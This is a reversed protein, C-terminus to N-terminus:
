AGKLISLDHSRLDNLHPEATSNCAVATSGATTENLRSIPLSSNPKVNCTIIIKIHTIMLSCLSRALSIEEKDVDLNEKSCGLSTTIKEERKVEGKEVVPAIGLRDPTELAFRLDKLCRKFGVKFQM